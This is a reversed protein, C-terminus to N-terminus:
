QNGNRWSELQDYSSIAFYMTIDFVKSAIALNKQAEYITFERGCFKM